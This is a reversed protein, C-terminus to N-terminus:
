RRKTYLECVKEFVDDVSIGTMCLNTRCFSQRHNYANVCPSCPLQAWLVHNRPTRAGFLAPTEPGFLTVVHIPTLTAFHAPGSDNTVLVESLSYLILLQRLTTRGALCVCRDRAIEAVLKGAGDQESPAGTFGVWLDPFQDILRRALEVYREEPWRRLPMLDSCNANLLVLRVPEDQGTERAIITRVADVEDPSPQFGPEPGDQADPVPVGSAPLEEPPLELSRVMFLLLDGTHIHPNLVLRHTLLGGRYWSEGHHSHFGVRKRAGSLYAAAVSSRAFFELDIAADLRLKRLRHIGKLGEWCLGVLSGSRLAVVNEPPIVELVDLIFRNEELVLFYINDRGYREAAERLARYALVTSGQEALKVFLIRRPEAPPREPLWDLLRRVVTLFICACGGIWRDARRMSSVNV